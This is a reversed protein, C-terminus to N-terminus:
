GEGWKGDSVAALKEVLRRLLGVERKIADHEAIVSGACMGDRNSTTQSRPDNTIKCNPKCTMSPPPLQNISIITPNLLNSELVRKLRVVEKGIHKTRLYDNRGM